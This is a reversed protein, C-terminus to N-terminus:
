QDLNHSDVGSGKRTRPKKRKKRLYDALAALVDMATFREDRLLSELMVLCQKGENSMDYHKANESAYKSFCDIERQISPSFDSVRCRLHEAFKVAIEVNLPIKGTLYQSVASQVSFGFEDALREQSLRLEGKRAEYIGRLREADQKQEHTLPKALM